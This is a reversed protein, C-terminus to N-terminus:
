GQFIQEHNEAYGEEPTGAREDGVVNEKGRLEAAEESAAAM